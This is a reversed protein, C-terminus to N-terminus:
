KVHTMVADKVIRESEYNVSRRTMRRQIIQIKSLTMINAVYLCLFVDQLARRKITIRTIFRSTIGPKWRRTLNASGKPMKRPTSLYSRVPTKTCGIPGMKILAVQRIDVSDPSLIYM